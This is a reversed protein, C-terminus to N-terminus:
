TGLSMNLPVTVWVTIPQGNVRAPQFRAEYALPLLYEDLEPDGTLRKVEVITPIGDPGVRMLLEAPSSRRRPSGEVPSHADLMLRMINRVHRPNTMAPPQEVEHPAPMRPGTLYADAVDLRIAVRIPGREPWAAVHQRVLPVLGAAAEDSLTGGALQVHAPGGASDTWFQLRGDPHEVGEEHLYRVAAAALALSGTERLGPVTDALQTDRAASAHAAPWSTSIASLLLITIM